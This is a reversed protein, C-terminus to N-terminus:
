SVSFGHSKPHENVLLPKHSLLDFLRKTQDNPLHVFRQCVL